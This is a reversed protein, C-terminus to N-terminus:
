QSVDSKKNRTPVFWLEYLKILHTSFLVGYFHREDHCLLRMFWWFFSQPKNTVVAGQFSHRILSVLPFNPRLNDIFLFSSLNNSPAGIRDSIATV